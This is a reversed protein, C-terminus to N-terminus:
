KEVRVIQIEDIIDRIQVGDIVYDWDINSFEVHPIFVTQAVSDTLSYDAFPTGLTAAVRRNDTPNASNTVLDTDIIIDDIWYAVPIYTQTKRNRAVTAWRYVENAMYGMYKNPNEAGTYVSGATWM